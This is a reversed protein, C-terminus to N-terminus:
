AITPTADILVTGSTRTYDLIVSEGDTPIVYIGNATIATTAPNTLTGTNKPKYAIGQADATSLGNGLIVGKTVISGVWTGSLHLTWGGASKSSADGLSATGTAALTIRPIAM